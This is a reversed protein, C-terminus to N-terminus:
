LILSKMKMFGQGTEGGEKRRVLLPRKVLGGYLKKNLFDKCESWLGAM